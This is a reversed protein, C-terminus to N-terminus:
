IIITYMPMDLTKREAASWEPSRAARRPTDIKIQV